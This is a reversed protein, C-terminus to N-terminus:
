LEVHLGFKVAWGNAAYRDLYTLRKLVSVRFLKFINAIGAGVEVYPGNDLYFTTPQGNTNPFAYNGSGARPRNEDRLGGVLIRCSVLERWKLKKILPIRDFFFGKFFHEVALGAYQDSVFELYNMTNFGSLHYGFSQNGRHIELLPWPLKGLVFGTELRVDTYGFPAVFFRKRVILKVNDYSYQSGGIGRFGRKYELNFVPFRNRIPLRAVGTQYFQEGPAWRLGVSVEATNLRGLTDPGNTHQAVYYLGGAPNEQAYHLGATLMWHNGFESVYNVFSSRSYLYKDNTGRTLLMVIHNSESPDMGPIRTDYRHGIQVYHMPYRYISRRNISYSLTVGYKIKQDKFGYTLYESRYFSSDWAPTSREGIGLRWGEVTNYGILENFPGAEFKGLPIYGTQLAQALATGRRYSRMGKLSDINTYIRTEAESLEQLRYQTFYSEEKTPADTYDQTNDRRLVSDPLSDWVAFDHYIVKREGTMGLGQKTIGFDTVVNSEFLHYKGSLSDRLFEQELNFGRVVGLNMKPNTYLRVRKVAYQGDLTVDMFGSFVLTNPNRPQIALRVLATNEEVVTDQIFYRYYGPAGDAIPSIFQRTFAIVSNQYIDIDENLRGLVQSIGRTDIYVGYDVKKETILKRNSKKPERRFYNDSVAEAIYVPTLRKGVASVTDTNEFMFRYPKLVRSQTLWDPVRDFFMVLKEYQRFTAAPYAGITNENKHEIVKRILEVAPNDRNTYRGTRSQVTVDSLRKEDRSLTIVFPTKTNPPIPLTKSHYGTALIIVASDRKQLLVSYRGDGDAIVGRGGPQIILSAGVLPDGSVSDIVRGHLSKGQGFVALNLLLLLAVVLGKKKMIDQGLIRGNM